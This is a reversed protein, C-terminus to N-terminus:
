TVKYQRAPGARTRQANFVSIIIIIIIIGTGILLRYSVRIKTPIGVLIENGHSNGNGNGHVGRNTVGGLLPAARARGIERCPAALSRGPQPRPLRRRWGRPANVAADTSSLSAEGDSLQYCIQRLRGDVPADETLLRTPVNSSLPKASDHTM